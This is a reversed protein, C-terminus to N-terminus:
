ACVRRLSTLLHGPKYPKVLWGTAGAARGRARIEVSSETTVMLVPIGRTAPNARIRAIMTLGDMVPMNLDSVVAHIDSQELVELGDRGNEAELVDYGAAILAQSAMRRYMEMDDVVLIRKAKMRAAM